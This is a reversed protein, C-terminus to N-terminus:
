GQGTVWAGKALLPWVSFRVGKPVLNQVGRAIMETRAQLNAEREPYDNALIVLEIDFKDSGVDRPDQDSVQIEIDDAVLASREQGGDLASAVIMPLAMAVKAIDHDGVIKPNRRLQVLPM